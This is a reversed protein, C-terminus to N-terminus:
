RALLRALDRALRARPRAVAAADTMVMDLQRTHMLLHGLVRLRGQMSERDRGEIRATVTDARQEVRFGLGALTEAVLRARLIRREADAAGGQFRFSAYSELPACWHALDDRRGGPSVM